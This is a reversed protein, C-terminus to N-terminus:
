GSPQRDSVHLRGGSSLLRVLDRQVPSASGYGIVFVERFFHAGSAAEARVRSLALRQVAGDDMCAGAGPGPDIRDRGYARRPDDLGGTGSPLGFGPSAELRRCLGPFGGAWARGAEEPSFGAAIFAGAIRHFAFFAGDELTSAFFLASPDIGGGLILGCAKECLEFYM